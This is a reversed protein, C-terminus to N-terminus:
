LQRCAESDLNIAPSSIINCYTTVKDYYDAYVRNDPHCSLYFDSVVNAYLNQKMPSNVLSTVFSGDINCPQEGIFYATHDKPKITINGSNTLAMVLTGSKIEKNRNLYPIYHVTLYGSCIEIRYDESQLRILDPSRNIIAESM